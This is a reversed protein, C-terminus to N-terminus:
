ECRMLGGVKGEEVQVVVEELGEIGEKLVEKVREVVREMQVYMVRVSGHQLNTPDRSAASPELQVHISGVLSSSDKPWFRPNTYSQLGPIDLLKKAFFPKLFSLHFIFTYILM